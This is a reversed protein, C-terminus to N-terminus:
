TLICIHFNWDFDKGGASIAVDFKNFLKNCTSKVYILWLEARLASRNVQRANRAFPADELEEYSAARKNIGYIFVAARRQVM